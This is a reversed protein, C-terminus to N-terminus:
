PTGPPPRRGRTGIQSTKSRHRTRASGATKCGQSAQVDLGNRTALRIRGANFVADVIPNTDLDVVHVEFGDARYLEAVDDAPRGTM